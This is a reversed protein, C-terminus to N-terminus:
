KIVNNNWDRALDNFKREIIEQDDTQREDDIDPDWEYFNEKLDELLPKNFSPLYPLRLSYDRIVTEKVRFVTKLSQVREFKDPFNGEKIQEYNNIAYNLYQQELRKRELGEIGILKYLRNVIPSTLGDGLTRVLEQFLEQRSYKKVLINMLMKEKETPPINSIM